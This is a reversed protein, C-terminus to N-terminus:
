QNSILLKYIRELDDINRVRILLRRHELQMVLVGDESLNMEKIRNYEIWVNAFFFREAQLHNKAYPDLVSVFGDIGTCMIVM